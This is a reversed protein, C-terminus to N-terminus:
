CFSLVQQSTYSQQVPKLPVMGKPVLLTSKTSVISLFIKLELAFIFIIFSGLKWPFLLPIPRLSNTDSSTKSRPPNCTPYTPFPSQRPFSRLQCDSQLSIRFCQHHHVVHSSWTNTTRRGAPRASFPHTSPALDLNAYWGKKNRKPTTAITLIYMCSMMLATIRFGYSTSWILYLLSQIWVM